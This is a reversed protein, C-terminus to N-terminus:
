EKHMCHTCSAHGTLLRMTAVTYIHRKAWAMDRISRETDANDLPMEAIDLYAAERETEQQVNDCISLSDFIQPLPVSKKHSPCYM